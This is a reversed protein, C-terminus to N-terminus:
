TMGNFAILLIHKKYLKKKYDTVYVRIRIRVRVSVHFYTFYKFYLIRLYMDIYYIIM